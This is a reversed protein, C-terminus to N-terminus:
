FVDLIGAGFTFGGGFATLGLRGRAHGPVLSELALPITNSSTNGYDRIFYYVKETPFKIARQIAEIIRENAQHPVIMDLDGVTIGDAACARELMDIMKKVAVRFVHKGDMEIHDGSNMAPVFLVKEEEGLASLVPRSVRSHINGSRSECCILSATAADGFLFLTGPDDRNLVPSLTESTILLIRADSDHRLMDYAQQLAYLYGTCAANVDHAQMQVAGPTPNLEKLIRCALSPTTSLPTGTSCIIAHFDAISLSEREFLKRCARVALTVATEGPGIWYRKAIGTRQVVDRPDWDPYSKVLEENTVERSGLASCISSIVVPRAGAAPPAARVLPAAVARRRLVPREEEAERAARATAATADTQLRLLPDGARLLDGEGAFLEEVMGSEPAAIESAAKDAEISALIQGERVSDGRKVHLRVIRINEDSPSAGIARVTRRGPEDVHPREWQLDLDLMAAAQELLRRVSPLLALQLGYHFPLLSDPTVVRAMRVPTRVAEGVTALIEAGLGCTHTDEHTVILRGTRAASATVTAKDWPSLTRLDIVETEIGAAALAEAAKECLAVTNGWGVWTLDRGPRAMRARGIPVFHREVDGSTALSRENLLNKPYLFVSPRRAEFAANLLGAADAANSPMFVDLGPVHCMVAEPSQAHYPGLGPRYGGTVAMVIVPAEWRGATRWHMAALEAQIQNYALPFFDGFQLFVVPRGGALARGVAMGVITSESLPSNQVRGPFETSLGRTLGFVDGKPDEIDQGFLWVAPDAALKSRLTARMAEILSLGGAADPAAGRYERAATDAGHPLLRRTEGPSAPAPAARAAALAQRLREEVERDIARLREEPVGAARLADALRPIPDNRRAASLDEDSRYISQDDSNSHSLLRECQFVVIRPGRDRRMAAVLRGFARYAAPVDAGDLRRIPVGHFARPEGDPRSYFTRGATPTSLAYRNDEFLFLVPLRSRAAEAIAELVEGEQAGGDGNGCLVIPRGPGDRVASAVGVAQLANNGVLTPQSLVHLSPDAHFPPMRRGQADAEATALLNHLFQEVPLGRLLLLARSRYHCHLWDDPTLHPALASTGEHGSGGLHFSAEGRRSLDYGLEDIRRATRMARYLNLFVDTQM